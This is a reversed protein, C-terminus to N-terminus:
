HSSLLRLYTPAVTLADSRLSSLDAKTNILSPAKKSSNPSPQLDDAKLNGWLVGLGLPSDEILMHHM